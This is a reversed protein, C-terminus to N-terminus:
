FNTVVLNPMNFMPQYEYLFIPYTIQYFLPIDTQVEWGFGVPKAWKEDEESYEIYKDEPFKWKTRFQPLNKDTKIDIGWFWNLYSFSPNQFEKQLLPINNPHTLIYSDLNRHTNKLDQISVTDRM